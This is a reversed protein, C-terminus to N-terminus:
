FATDIDQRTVESALRHHLSEIGLESKFDVGVLWGVPTDIMSVLTISVLVKFSSSRDGRSRDFSRSSKSSKSGLYGFKFSNLAASIM